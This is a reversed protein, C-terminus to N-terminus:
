EGRNAREVIISKNQFYSLCYQLTEPCLNFKPNTLNLINIARDGIDFLNGDPQHQSISLGSLAYCTHHVDAAAGPKDRLLGDDDQCQNLIYDQLSRADMLWYNLPNEINIETKSKSRTRPQEKGIQDSKTPDAECQGINLYPHIMPFVAGQWYSYCSDVLKNSRGCFGGEPTLQKATIWRLLSDMDIGNIQNILSLGAICCFTYGGHAESGPLSGFGGEYTQCSILWDAVRELLVEDQINLLRMIALACYSARSDIEGDEHVTFSGDPQKMRHLFEHVKIRDISELAEENSLCVLASIASFTTALHGIHGPGGGYGGYREDRCERIFEIVHHSKSQLFDSQNLLNLSQAAWYVLWTQAPAFNEAKLNLPGEFYKSLQTIHKKRELKNDEKITTKLSAM